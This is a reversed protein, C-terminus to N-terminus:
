VQFDWMATPFHFFFNGASVIHPNNVLCFLQNFQLALLKSLKVGDINLFILVWKWFCYRSGNLSGWCTCLSVCLLRAALLTGIWTSLPQPHLIAGNKRGSDIIVADEWLTWTWLSALYWSSLNCLLFFCQLLLSTLYYVSPIHYSTGLPSLFFSWVLKATYEHCM